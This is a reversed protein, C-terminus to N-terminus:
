ARFSFVKDFSFAYSAAFVFRDSAQKAIGSSVIVIILVTDEDIIM